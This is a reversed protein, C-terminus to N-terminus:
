AAQSVPHLIDGLALLVRTLVEDLGSKGWTPREPRRRFLIELGSAVALEVTTGDFQVTSAARYSGDM